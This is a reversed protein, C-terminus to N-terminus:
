EEKEEVDNLNYTIVRSARRPRQSKEKVSKTGTAKKQVTSGSKASIKTPCNKNTCLHDIMISGCTCFELM